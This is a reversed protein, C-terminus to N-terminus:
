VPHSLSISNGVENGFVDWGETEKRAFLELYPGGSIREIIRRAEEPKESHRLRKAEFWTPISRDNVLPKGKRAVLIHETASRLTYGMGIGRKVWTLITQPKFGWQRCVEVHWGEAMIPNTVWLWLFSDKAAPIKMSCIDELKMTNYHHSAAGRGGRGTVKHRYEWPPDAYIVGYQKM